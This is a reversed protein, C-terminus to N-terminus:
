SSAAGLQARERGLRWGVMDLRDNGFFVENNFIFSPVGFIGNAYARATESALAARAEPTLAQKILDPSRGARTLCEELVTPDAIDRQQQWLADFIANRFADHGEPDLLAATCLAPISNPRPPKPARLRANHFEANRRVDALLHARKPGSLPDTYAAWADRGAQLNLLVDISVPRWLWRVPVPSVFAGERIRHNAFYAYPSRFDYYTEITAVM